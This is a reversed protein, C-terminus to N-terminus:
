SIIKSIFVKLISLRAFQTRIIINKYCAIREFFMILSVAMHVFCCMVNVPEKVNHHILVCASRPFLGGSRPKFRKYVLCPIPKLSAKGIM